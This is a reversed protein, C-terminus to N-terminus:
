AFAPRLAGSRRRRVRRGARARLEQRARFRLVAVTDASPVFPDAVARGDALSIAAVIGGDLEALLVEGTLPLTSDLAALAELAGADASHAHRITLLSSTSSMAPVM